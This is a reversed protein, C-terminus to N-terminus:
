EINAYITATEGDIPSQDHVCQDKSFWKQNWKLEAENRFLFQKKM